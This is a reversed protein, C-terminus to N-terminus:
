WSLTLTGFREVAPSIRMLIFCVAIMSLVYVHCRSRNIIQITISPPSPAPAPNILDLHILQELVLSQSEVAERKEDTAVSATAAAADLDEFHAHEGDPMLLM